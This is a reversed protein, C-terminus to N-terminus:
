RLQALNIGIGYRKGLSVLLNHVTESSILIDIVSFQVDPGFKCNRTCYGKKTVLDVTTIPDINKFESYWKFFDDFKEKFLLRNVEKESIKYFFRGQEMQKGNIIIQVVGKEQIHLSKNFCKPCYRM